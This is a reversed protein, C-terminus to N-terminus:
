KSGIMGRFNASLRLEFTMTGLVEYMGDNMWDIGGSIIELTYIGNGMYNIHQQLDITRVVIGEEVTNQAIDDILAALAEDTTNANPVETIALIPAGVTGVNPSGKYIQVYTQSGPYLDRYNVFIKPIASYIVVDDNWPIFDSGDYATFFGSAVPWSNIVATTLGDPSVWTGGLTQAKIKEVGVNYLPDSFGILRSFGTWSYTSNSLDAVTSGVAYSSNLPYDMTAWDFEANQGEHIINLQRALLPALPDNSLNGVTANVTYPFDARTRRIVQTVQQGNVTVTQSGEWPDNTEVSFSATPPIGGVQMNDMWTLVGAIDAWLVFESGAESIPFPSAIVGIDDSSYIHMTIGTDNDTQILVNDNIASNSDEAGGRIEDDVGDNTDEAGNPGGGGQGPNSSDVGGVNNGHGNNTHGPPRNIFWGITPTEGAIVDGTPPVLEGTVESGASGNGNGEAHLSLGGVMLTAFLVIVKM